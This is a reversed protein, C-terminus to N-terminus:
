MKKTGFSKALVFEDYNEATKGVFKVVNETIIQPNINDYHKLLIDILHCCWIAWWGCKISKNTQFKYPYFSFNLHNKRLIDFMIKDYPRFNHPGLSDIIFVNNEDYKYLCIYHIGQGTSVDTNVVFPKDYQLLKEFTDVMEVDYGNKQIDNNSMM